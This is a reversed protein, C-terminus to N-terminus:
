VRLAEALDGFALATGNGHQRLTRGIDVPRPELTDLAEADGGASRRGLHDDLLDHIGEGLAVNEMHLRDRGRLLILEERQRTRQPGVRCLFFSHLPNSTRVRKGRTRTPSEFELRARSESTRMLPVALAPSSRFDPCWM